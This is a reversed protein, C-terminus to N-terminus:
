PYFLTYPQQSRIIDQEVFLYPRDVPKVVVADTIFNKDPTWYHLHYAPAELVFESERKLTLDLLLQMGMSPATSIVTDKWSTNIPVHFHGCIIKKVHHHKSFFSGLLEKGIFCDVDTELVGCKILPHHIFIM